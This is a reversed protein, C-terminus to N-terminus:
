CNNLPVEREVVDCEKPKRGMESAMEEGNRKENGKRQGDELHQSSLGSGGETDVHM